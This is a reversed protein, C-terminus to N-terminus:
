AFYFFHFKLVFCVVLCYSDSSTTSQSCDLTFTDYPCKFNILSISLLMFIYRSCDFEPCSVIIHRSMLGFSTPSPPLLWLSTPFEILLTKLRTHLHCKPVLLYNVYEVAFFYVEFLDFEAIGPKWVSLNSYWKPIM